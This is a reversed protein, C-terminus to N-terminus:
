AALAPRGTVQRAYSGITALARDMRDTMAHSANLRICNTYGHSASFMPGPAVSIGQAVAHRQLALADVAEPLELWTFYGGAPRTATTGEPFHRCIAHAMAEQRAALTQRLQRLHRDYGGRQLYQVLGIQAPMSSMLTTTLKQRAVARVHRGAAVWGIRYGPALCKSFSSCHLVVGERDWAKVPRTPAGGFCLEGYVDDEILAVGRRTVLEVLERKDDDSMTAGMPNQFTPMLWCARAGSKVIADDLRQLDVGRSPHTPVEVGRMGLRELAQLAGYFAPSEVIVADGPRAVTSLSLNLAELAGNTIVIGDPHVAVGRQLYRQAILRRLGEKGPSLEDVTSRPSLTRAAHAMARGLQQLPFLSADPFPSGFPVMNQRTAADLVDFVLDSVQVESRGSAPATLQTPEPLLPRREAVFYGSRPRADVLGRAELSYYAQFVTSPSVRHSLSAQRVSPLRDGARLVGRRIATEIEGALAQYRNM